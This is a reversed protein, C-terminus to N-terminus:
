PWSISWASASGSMIILASGYANLVLGVLMPLVRTGLSGTVADIGLWNWLDILGGILVMTLVHQGAATEQELGDLPDPPFTVMRGFFGVQLAPVGVIEVLGLTM